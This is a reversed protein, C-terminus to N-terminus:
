SKQAQRTAKQAAVGERTTHQETEEKRSAASRASDIAEQLYPFPATLFDVFTNFTGRAVTQLAEQRKQSQEALTQVLDRSSKAHAKLVETGNELV